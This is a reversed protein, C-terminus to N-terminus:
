GPFTRATAPVGRGFQSLVILRVCLNEVLAAVYFTDSMKAFGTPESMIIQAVNSECVAENGILPLFIRWPSVVM